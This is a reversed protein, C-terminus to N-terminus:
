FAYQALTVRAQGNLDAINEINIYNGKEFLKIVDEKQDYGHEILIWGRPRLYTPANAIIHMIDQLGNLPATLASLPEFRVDGETLHPDNERIYPPNSVIIDFKEHQVPLADFWSGSYLDIDLQNLVSNEKALQIAETKYDTATISWDPLESKLALAIAGTGTGLDLIHGSKQQKKLALTLASEVLTETDPRPILTSPAVKFPLGWFEKNGLIYAIPLGQLRKDLLRNFTVLQEDTVIKDPWTYLYARNEKGLVHLLLLEADLKASDSDVLRASAHKVIAQINNLM